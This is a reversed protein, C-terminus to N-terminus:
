RSLIWDVLVAPFGPANHPWGDRGDPPVHLTHDAGALIRVAPTIRHRALLPRIAAISPAVPVVDDKGGYILLTPAAVAAWAPRNDANATLPYWSWVWSEDGPLALADFWAAKAHSAEDANLRDHPLARRAVDVFETYLAMADDLEAGRYTKALANRVRFLDQEFEPGVNGDAAAIWAVEPDDRAVLPALYAGQSHGYYGVKQPDVDARRALAHVAARADAALDDLTAKRWDGSSDGVGRRDYVLAVIGHRAAYDAVFRLAWRGEPGSGPTLVMAPHKGAARPALVTGALSVAGNSFRVDSTVYPKETSGSLRHLAFTGSSSGERFSGRIYDGSLTGDFVTTTSDGALEWHVDEPRLNTVPVDLAGLDGATFYGRGRAKGPFDFAVALTSTGRTLRGEWHGTLDGAARVPADVCLVLFLM